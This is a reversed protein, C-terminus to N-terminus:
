DAEGVKRAEKLLWRRFAAIKPHRADDERSVAYYAAKTKIALAFPAVLRGAEIDHALVERAGLLVGAGDVAADLCLQPQSFHPGRGADVDAVGAAQLWQPWSPWGDSIRRLDDHLLLHRRLDAPERLPHAGALLRPSCLPTFNVEFLKDVQCGPYRGSGFRITVDPQEAECKATPLAPTPQRQDLLRASTSVCLDIDPFAEVFGRIRPTLWKAGFLPPVCVTLTGTEQYCRVSNVAQAVGEFAEILKPLFARGVETLEVARTMRRFLQVGLHEELLRIQHSVAAPTVHLEAAAKRFSLHRGASEFARLSKLPPLSYAM